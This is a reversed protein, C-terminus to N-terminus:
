SRKRAMLIVKGSGRKGNPRSANREQRTRLAQLAEYDGDPLPAATTGSKEAVISRSPCPRTAERLAAVDDAFLIMRNGFVSCAGIKRAMRRLTREPVGWERALDEPTRPPTSNQGSTVPAATM